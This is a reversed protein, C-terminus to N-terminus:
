DPHKEKYLKLGYEYDLKYRNRAEEINNTIIGREDYVTKGSQDPFTKKVLEIIKKKSFKTENHEPHKLIEIICFARSRTLSMYERKSSNDLKQSENEKIIFEYDLLQLFQKFFRQLQKWVITEDSHDLIIATLKQMWNIDIADYNYWNECWARGIMTEDAIQKKLEFIRQKFYATKGEPYSLSLSHERQLNSNFKHSKRESELIESIKERILKEKM